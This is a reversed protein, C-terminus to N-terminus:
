KHAKHCAACNALKPLSKAAKEDGKAAAEAAKVLATTKKKWEGEDGMPPKNQSLSTYLEVLQKKEDDNAEGAAVKKMLGGKHATKMVEPITHKAKEGADNTGLCLAVALTAILGSAAFKM